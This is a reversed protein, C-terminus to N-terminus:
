ITIFPLFGHLVSSAVLEFNRLFVVGVRYYSWRNVLIKQEECSRLSSGFAGVM